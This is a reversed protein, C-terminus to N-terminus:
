HSLWWWAALGITVIAGLAVPAWFTLESAEPPPMSSVPPNSIVATAPATIPTALLAPIAEPRTDLLAAAYELDSEYTQRERGLELGLSHAMHEIKEPSYRRRLQKLYAQFETNTVAASVTPWQGVIHHANHSLIKHRCLDAIPELGMEQAQVSALILMKDRVMPQQRLRSARVLHLYLGLMRDADAM